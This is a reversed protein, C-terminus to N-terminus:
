REHDLGVEGDRSSNIDSAEKVLLKMFDCGLNEVLVELEGETEFFSELLFDLTGQVLDGGAGSLRDAVEGKNAM